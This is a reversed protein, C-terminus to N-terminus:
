QFVKIEFDDYYMTNKARNWIVVTLVSEKESIKPLNFIFERDNWNENINFYQLNSVSFLIDKDGSKISVCLLCEQLDVKSAFFAKVKLISPADNLCKLNEIKCNFGWETNPLVLGAKKGSYCFDSLTDIGGCNRPISDFSVRQEFTISKTNLNFFSDFDNLENNEKKIFVSIEDNSAIKQVENLINPYYPYVTNILKQNEIVLYDYPWNLGKAIREPEPYIMGFGKRKMLIFPNNPGDAGMVLIKADRPIQLADLFLDSNKFANATPGPNTKESEQVQNAYVIAPIFLLLLCAHIAYSVKMNQFSPMKIILFVVLLIFPMYFTDLFYYDHDLFQFSMLFYYLICGFFLISCLCILKRELDSLSIKKMIAIILFLIGLVIILVYHFHSFYKFAWREYVAILFDKLDNWNAAPIVYNLFLSGYEARLYENYKYYAGVCAISVLFLIWKFFQIKRAKIILLCELCIVAVLVIAFPLRALIAITIFFMFWYFDKKTNDKYFKFLFYLAIMCNALSPITPLFGAQYYLLTPSTLAFLVVVTSKVVSNTFLTTLKYLFFLGIISYLFVFVRFCWPDTSRSIRMVFSALYDYIPFDVSTISSKMVTMFNGDPFQNNYIFTEPHFFDGGNNVFGLAIAYRDCQAWSHKYQPFENLTKFQFLLGITCITLLVIYKHYSSKL